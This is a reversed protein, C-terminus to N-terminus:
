LLRLEFRSENDVTATARGIWQKNIEGCVVVM